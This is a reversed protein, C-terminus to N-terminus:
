LTVVVEGPLTGLTCLFSFFFFVRFTTHLFSMTSKKVPEALSTDCPGAEHSSDSCANYTTEERRGEGKKGEGSETSNQRDALWALWGSFGHMWRMMM